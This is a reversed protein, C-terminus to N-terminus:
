DGLSIQTCIWLIEATEEGVSVCAHGMRSDFYISDGAHLTLPAYTDTHLEAVGELVYTFEEGPHRALEGFEEPSQSVPILGFKDWLEPSGKSMDSFRALDKPHYYTEM